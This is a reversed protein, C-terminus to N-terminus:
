PGASGTAPAASGAAGAPDGGQSDGGEADADADADAEPQEPAQLKAACELMARAITQTRHTSQITGQPVRKMEQEACSATTCACVRAKIATLTEADHDKCAVLTVL